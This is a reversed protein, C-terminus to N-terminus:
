ILCSKFSSKQVHRSWQFLLRNNNLLWARKIMIEIIHFIHRSSLYLKAQELEMLTVIQKSNVVFVSMISQIKIGFLGM